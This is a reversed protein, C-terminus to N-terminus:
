DNLKNSHAEVQQAIEQENIENSVATITEKNEKKCSGIVVVSVILSLIVKNM